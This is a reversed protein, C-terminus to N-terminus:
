LGGVKSEDDIFLGSMVKSYELKRYKKKIKIKFDELCFFFVFLSLM